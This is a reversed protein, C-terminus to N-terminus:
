SEFQDILKYLLSREGSAGADGELEDIRHRVLYYEQANRIKSRGIIAALLSEDKRFFEPYHRAISGHLIRMIEAHAGHGEANLGLPLERLGQEMGSALKSKAVGSELTTASM